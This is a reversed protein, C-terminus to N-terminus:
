ESLEQVPIEMCPFLCSVHIRTSKPPVINWRCVQQLMIVIIIIYVFTTQTSAMMNNRTTYTLDSVTTCLNDLLHRVSADPAFGDYAVVCGLEDNQAVWDEFSELVQVVSCSDGNGVLRVYSM